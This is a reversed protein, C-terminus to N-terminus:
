KNTTTGGEYKNLIDLIIKEFVDAPAAGSIKNANIFITPTGKVGLAEADQIDRNVLGLKSKKDLCSLFEFSNLGVQQSVKVLDTKALTSQNQFLKDHFEIFKKQEDACRAALAFDVSEAAVAPYDRWYFRIVDKYKILLPRLVFFEKYCQLCRFDGFEVITVIPKEAGWQPSQPNLLLKQLETTDVTKVNGLLRAMEDPHAKFYFYWRGVLCSGVVLLVLFVCVFTWLGRHQKKIGIQQEM